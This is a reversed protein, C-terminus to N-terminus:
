IKGIDETLGKKIMINRVTYMVENVPIDTNMMLFEKVKYEDEINNLHDMCYKYMDMHRNGHKFSYKADKLSPM